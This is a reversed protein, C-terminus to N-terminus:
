SRREPLLAELPELPAYARQLKALTPLARAAFDTLWKDPLRTEPEAVDDVIAPPLTDTVWAVDEGDERTSPFLSRVLPNLKDREEDAERKEVAARRREFTRLDAKSQELESRPDFGVGACMVCETEDELQEDLKILEAQAADVSHQDGGHDGDDEPLELKGGPVRLEGLRDSASCPDTSYASQACCVCLAILENLQAKAASRAAGNLGAKNFCDSPGTEAQSM